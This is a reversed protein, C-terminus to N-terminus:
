ILCRCWLLFYCHHHHHHHDIHHYHHHHRHAHAHTHTHTHTHTHVYPLSLRPFLSVTSVITSCAHVCLSLLCCVVCCSLAHEARVDGAVPSNVTRPELVSIYISSGRHVPQALAGRYAATAPALWLVAIYLNPSLAVILLPPPHRGSCRLTCTPRSRWSLCRHRTGVLAGRPPPLSSLSRSSV